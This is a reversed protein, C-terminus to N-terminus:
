LLADLVEQAHDKPNVNPFAKKLRGEGDIIFTSRLIGVHERGYMMKPGWAGYAEAAKHDPDCLLHFPLNFKEIFKVHSAENDPSVGLVAAGKALIDDHVDRFGCAEVTCGSTDDKPYFYLVVQKGAFDSLSVKEGLQNKLIFEPVKGGETLM